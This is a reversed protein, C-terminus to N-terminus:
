IRDIVSQVKSDVCFFATLLENASFLLWHKALLDDGFDLKLLRRMAKLVEDKV